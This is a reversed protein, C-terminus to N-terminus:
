KKAKKIQRHLDSIAEDKERITDAKRKLMKEKVRFMEKVRNVIKEEPYLNSKKVEGLLDEVTFYDFDIYNDLIVRKDEETCENGDLWFVFADFLVKADANFLIDMLSTIPLNKFAESDQVVEPIHPIEHLNKLLLRRLKHKISFGLQHQDAYLLGKIYEPLICCDLVSKNHTHCIIAITHKRVKEMLDKLLMMNAMHMLKLLDMLSLDHLKMEGSFLFYVIKEMVKKNVDCQRIDVCNDKGEVFNKNNLMTAILIDKNAHIEGDELVIKVDSSSGEKLMKLLDEVLKGKDDINQRSPDHDYEYCNPQMMKFRFDIFTM